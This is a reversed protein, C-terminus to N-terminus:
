LLEPDYENFDGNSFAKVFAKQIEIDDEKNIINLNPSHVSSIDTSIYNGSNISHQASSVRALDGTIINLDANINQNEKNLTGNSTVTEFTRNNNTIEQTM